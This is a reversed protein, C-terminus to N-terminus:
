GTMDFQQSRFEDNTMIAKNTPYISVVHYGIESSEVQNESDDNSFDNIGGRKYWGVVTFGGNGNIYEIVNDICDQM